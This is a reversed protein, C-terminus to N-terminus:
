RVKQFFTLVILLFICIEQSQNLMQIANSQSTGLFKAMSYSNDGKQAKLNGTNDWEWQGDPDSYRIPNCFFARYPSWGPADAAHPDVSLFRQVYKVKPDSSRYMVKLPTEQEYYSLKLCGLKIFKQHPLFVFIQM